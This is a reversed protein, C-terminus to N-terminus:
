NSASGATGCNSIIIIMSCIHDTPQANIQSWSKALLLHVRGRKDSCLLATTLCLWFRALASSPPARCMKVRYQLNFYLSKVNVTVKCESDIKLRERDCEMM